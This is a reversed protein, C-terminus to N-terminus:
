GNQVVGNELRLMQDALSDFVDDHTVIFLTVGSAKLKQFAKWTIGINEADINSSPEDAFIIKRPFLLARVIAVRQREGGSLLKAKTDQKDLIQFESLLQQIAAPNKEATEAQTIAMYVELNELVTLEEFLDYEQFIYGITNRKLTQREEPQFTKSNKGYYYLDGQDAPELMACINLLTTKGSGSKGKMVTTQGPYLTMEVDQLVCQNGYSKRVHKLEIVAKM